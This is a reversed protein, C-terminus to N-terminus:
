RRFINKIFSRKRGGQDTSEDSHFTESLSSVSAKKVISKRNNYKKSELKVKEFFTLNDDILEHTLQDGHMVATDFVVNYGNDHRKIMFGRVITDLFEDAKDGYDSLLQAKELSFEVKRLEKVLNRAQKKIDKITFEHKSLVSDFAENDEEILSTLFDSDLRNDDIDGIQYNELDLEIESSLTSNNEREEDDENLHECLKALNAYKDILYPLRPLELNITQHKVNYDQENLNLIKEGFDLKRSTVKDFYILLEDKHKDIFDENLPVLYPEKHQQFTGRNSFTMFVKAILVLTRPVNGSHNCDTLNYLKPSLIAPCIFRLFIFSSLANLSVETYNGDVSLEVNSRLNKWQNKITSPIDNTTLKIREWLLEVYVLLNKYNEQYNEPDLKPDCECNLNENNILEIFEGLLGKLYDEGVRVTYKELSKSLISNGRFITTYKFSNQKTSEKISSPTLEYKMLSEFFDDIRNMEQYIDLLVTSWYELNSSDIKAEIEPLLISVKSTSIMKAFSRYREIPLLKTENVEINIMLEGILQNQLNTVDLHHINNSDLDNLHIMCSAIIEDSDEGSINYDQSSEAKKILIKFSNISSLPLKLKVLDKWFVNLNSDIKVISTRFWVMNWLILECYLYSDTTNKLKTPNGQLDIIEVSLNKCFRLRNNSDSFYELRSHALLNIYWEKMQIDNSFRIAICHENSNINFPTSYNSGHSKRLEDIPGLYLTHPSQYVSPHLIRVESEFLSSINFSHLITDDISLNLIGTPLLTAVASKWDYSESSIDLYQLEISLKTSNQKENVAYTWKNVIGFQKLNAWVSAASIFDLYSNFDAFKFFFSKNSDKVSLKVIFAFDFLSIKCEQINATILLSNGTLIKGDNTILLNVTNWHTSNNLLGKVSLNSLENGFAWQINSCNFTGKHKIASNLLLSLTSDKPLKTGSSIITTPTTPSVAISSISQSNLLYM